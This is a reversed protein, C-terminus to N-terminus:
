KGSVASAQKAQSCQCCMCSRTWVCECFDGRKCVECEWVRFMEAVCATCCCGYCTRAREQALARDESSIKAQKKMATDWYYITAAFVRLM